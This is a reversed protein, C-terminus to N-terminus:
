SSPWYGKYSLWAFLAAVAAGGVWLVKKVVSRGIDEYISRLLAEKIAEVQEETLGGNRRRETGERQEPM